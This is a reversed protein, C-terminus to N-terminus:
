VKPTDDKTLKSVAAAALGIVFVNKCLTEVWPILKFTFGPIIASGVPNAMLAAGAAAAAILSFRIVSKFFEPTPAKWRQFINM